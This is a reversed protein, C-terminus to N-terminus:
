WAYRRGLVVPLVLAILGVGLGIGIPIWPSAPDDAAPGVASAPEAETLGGPQAAEVEGPVTPPTIAGAGRIPPAAPSSGPILPGAHATGGSSGGGLSPVPTPSPTTVGPIPVPPLTPQPVPTTTTSPIPAPKPARPAVAVPFDEGAAPVLAQGTV